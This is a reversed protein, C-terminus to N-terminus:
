GGRRKRNRQVAANKKKQSNKKMSSFGFCGLRKGLAFYDGHAYALLNAREIEMKGDRNLLREDVSVSVIDAVFMDHSGLPVIKEVRCELAIPCEGIIPVSVKSPEELTFKCKEIKNVKAGTYMGCFDVARVLDASPLNIVFEGSEKIMQYSFREPRVSIYTKPPVTSLIGCWAVTFANIKDGSKCTVIAPPLPSLMAGGRWNQRAM